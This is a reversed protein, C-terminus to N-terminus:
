APRRAAVADWVPACDAAGMLTPVTVKLAICLALVESVSLARGNREVAGVTQHLWHRFGLAQMRAALSKQSLGARGREARINAGLGATYGQWNIM